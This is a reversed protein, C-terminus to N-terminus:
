APRRALLHAMVPGGDPESEEYHEVRLSPFAARLEGPQLLYRASKPRGHREQGTRFTEYVLAGGPAVAREIWGLLPRHLFRVVVVLDWPREIAPPEEAILEVVRTTVRVGCTKALAEARALADADHDWAEVDWGHMALFVSDRGSGSAFDLARGPALSPLVRELFPSPQWARAAPGRDDHGGDLAALPADLWAVDGYGLRALTAAARGAEAPEDHVVLVTATRPPLEARRATFEELAVRGAGALHGRAFASAERVDLVIAHASRAAAQSVTLPRADAVQPATIPFPEGDPAM